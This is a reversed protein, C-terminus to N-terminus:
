SKNESKSRSIKLYTVIGISIFVAATLVIAVPIWKIESVYIFTFSGDEPEQLKPFIECLSYIVAGIPIIASLSILINRVLSSGEEMQSVRRVPVVKEFDLASALYAGVSCSIITEPIMYTANYGLSYILAAETPISLGAWVTCGAVTHLVYRLICVTLIGLTISSTYSLKKVRRYIGGLGLVGFALLYDLFIVAVVSQWGTVYSLTNLGLLQQIVGYAFGGM